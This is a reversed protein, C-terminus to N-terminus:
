QSPLRCVRFLTALGEPTGPWHASVAEVGAHKIVSRLALSMIIADDALGIVPIFDPVLDIPSLLYALLLWLRVRVGRRLSKDGALRRILRVADPVIRAAERLTGQEPKAVVLGVVLLLWIVVLSVAISV